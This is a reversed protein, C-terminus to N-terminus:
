QVSKTFFNVLKKFSVIYPSIKKLSKIVSLQFTHSFCSLWKIDEWMTFAKKMNFGNDTVGFFLKKNLSFEDKKNNIYRGCEKSKKKYM